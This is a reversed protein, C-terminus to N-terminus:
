KYIGLDWKPKLSYVVYSTYFGNCKPSQVAASSRKIRNKPTQVAAFGLQVHKQAGANSSIGLQDCIELYICSYCEFDWKPKLSCVVYLNYFGNYKLPRMM